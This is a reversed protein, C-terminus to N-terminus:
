AGKLLVEDSVFKKPVKLTFQVVHDGKIIYTPIGGLEKILEKVIKFRNLAEERYELAYPLKYNKIRKQIINSVAKESNKFEFCYAELDEEVKLSIAHSASDSFIEGEIFLELVENLIEGLTSLATVIDILSSNSNIIIEIGKEKALIKQSLIISSIVPNEIKDVKTRIMEDAVNGIYSKLEENKNMEAMANMVQLRNRFERRESALTDILRNSHQLQLLLKAQENQRYEFERQKKTLYQIIYFAVVGGAAAIWETIISMLVAHQSGDKLSALVRMFTSYIVFFLSGFLLIGWFDINTVKKSLPPILSIEFTSLIFLTLAPFLMEAVCGAINGYPTYLIFTAISKDLSFLPSLIIISGIGQILFALLAAWFTKLLKIKGIVKLMLAILPIIILGFVENPIIQKGCISYFALISAVTLIKFFKVKVGLIQFGLKFVVLWVTLHTVLVLALQYFLHEDLIMILLEKSM